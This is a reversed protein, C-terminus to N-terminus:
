RIDYKKKLYTEINKIESITYERKSEKTKKKLLFYLHKIVDENAKEVKSKGTLHQNVVYQADERFQKKGTFASIMEECKSIWCTDKLMSTCETPKSWKLKEKVDKDQFDQSDYVFDIFSQRGSKTSAYSSETKGCRTLNQEVGLISLITSYENSTEDFTNDLILLLAHPDGIKSELEIATEIAQLFTYRKGKWRKGKVNKKLEPERISKCIEKITTIFEERSTYKEKKLGSKITKYIDNSPPILSDLIRLFAKTNQVETEMKVAVEVKKQVNPTFQRFREDMQIKTFSYDSSVGQAV